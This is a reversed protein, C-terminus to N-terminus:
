VAVAEAAQATAAAPRLKAALEPQEGPLFSVVGGGSAWCAPCTVGAGDERLVFAYGDCVECKGRPQRAAPPAKPQRLKALRDPALEDAIAIPWFGYSDPPSSRRRVVRAVAAVLEDVTAEGMAAEVREVIARDPPAQENPMAQHLADAIREAKETLPPPPSGAASRRARTAAAPVPVPVPVPRARTSTTVKETNEAVKEVKEAVEGCGTRLGEKQYKRTPAGNAFNQGAYELAERVHKDAHQHWDHIWDWGGMEDIFGAGILIQRLEEVPKGWGLHDALDEWQEVEIRGTRASKRAWLWVAEMMGLAAWPPMQLSRALRRTKRNEYAGNLAM